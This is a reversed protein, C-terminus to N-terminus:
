QNVRDIFDLKIGKEPLRYVRGSIEEEYFEDEEDEDNVVEIVGNNIFGRNLSTDVVKANRPKRMFVKRERVYQRDALRSISMERMEHDIHLPCLWDRVKKGWSDRGPQNSLPPDLCDLHWHTSCQDCTIIERRGM